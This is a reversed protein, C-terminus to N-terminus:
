YEGFTAEGADLFAEKGWKRNAKVKVPKSIVPELVICRKSTKMKLKSGHKLGLQERFKYPILVRGKSDIKVIIEKVYDGWKKNGVKIYLYIGVKIIYFSSSYGRISEVIGDVDIKDLFM